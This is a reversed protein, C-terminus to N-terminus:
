SKKAPTTAPAAPAPTTKGQQVAPVGKLEPKVPLTIGKTSDATPETREMPKL